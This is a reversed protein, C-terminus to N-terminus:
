GTKRLMSFEKIVDLPLKWNQYGLQAIGGALILAWVGLRLFQLFLLLLIVTVGGSILSAKFFPVQNKTVLFGGANAHNTELLSIILIVFIFNNQLLPTKSGILNMGWEGFLLLGLGGLIFVSVIIFCSKIYIAKIEAINNNIRYQVIKPQYTSFYVSAVVSLISVIQITIGYSAITELPLYLSGIIPQSRLILVSGLGTLGLKVANPYVANFIERKERAKYSELKHKLNGKYIEHHSLIRRVIVSVAQASVIAVLGFGAFILVVAILLYLIQAIIIIQKSVRILGMGLLLADYYLTYLLYSNISCLIFWAIMIDNKNGSYTKLIIHIYYTGITLLIALLIIMMRLYFSRMVSILGKLLGYDIEKKEEDQQFGTTKLTKIGSMVYTVNRAFSANFGFDFLTVLATITVFVTWIGITEQPLFRLIFPLLIAQAAIQLFTAAYNWFLDKHNISITTLKEEGLMEIMEMAQV